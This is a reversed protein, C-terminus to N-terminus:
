KETLGMHGEEMGVSTVELCLQSEKQVLAKRGRQATQLKGSAFGGTNGM